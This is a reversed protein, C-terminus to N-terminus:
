PEEGPKFKEDVPDWYYHGAAWLDITDLLEFDGVQGQAWLDIYGLLEFDSIVYDNNTDAPHYTTGGAFEYAGMDVIPPTGNGTDATDPDDSFRPKGDLDTIIGAPVASNDGADICPSGALLNYDGDVWFDDEPAPTGNPDWHGPAVFSPDTDINGLGTWSGQVDSYTITITSGDNNLIEDGGDWLICNALEINGPKQQQSSDCGLANGDDASNGSFTCNTLKLSGSNHWNFIGGGYYNKVANGSFLCNTLTSNSDDWNFMGGGYAVASNGSIVCNVMSLDGKLNLMGGGYRGARNNTFTCNILYPNGAGNFFGGGDSRARNDNFTCNIVISSSNVDSHMGGSFEASNSSFTCNTVTPSSNEDSAMGGGYKFASNAFFTCDIITPSSNLENLLGGGYEDNPDSTGNANGATITFGDLVATEDTGSGTVLVHYSNEANNAFNPGDNGNLDGSLITENNNTDCADPDLEGFGAYGGKIAVGSKLRFTATRAGGFGAPKYIGQAVRIEDGTLSATLADQLSTFANIWSSGDNAGQTADMDVYITTPIHLSVMINDFSRGDYTWTCDDYQQFKIQFDSTYDIGASQVAGDLDFLGYSFSSTLNVLLHWNTGDASFAIGDGDAHGTFSSPLAKDEDSNDIHNLSLKVRNLGTLNLHLIAENLSTASYDITDDMRLQGNVVEIRGEYNSYYEWGDSPGPKGSSFDQSYPFASQPVIPISEGTYDENSKDSTVNSYSKSPPSFKHGSKSPTITGSWDYTVTGSYYGSSSTVPDTDLWGTMTVGSIGSGSSTRVYGSITLQPILTGTYNQNSQNSTVNSYSISPPSFNYGM